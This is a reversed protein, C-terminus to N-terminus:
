LEQAAALALKLSVPQLLSIGESAGCLVTCVHCRTKVWTHSEAQSVRSWAFLQSSVHSLGAPTVGLSSSLTQSIRSAVLSHQSFERVSFVAPFFLFASSHGLSSCSQSAADKGRNRGADRYYQSPVQSM